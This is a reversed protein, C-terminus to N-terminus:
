KVRIKWGTQIYNVNTILTSNLKQIAAVSTGYKRAIGSLTDGSQITYYVKSNETHAGCLQNVRTQVANYDYGASTLRRKRDEGNGWNGALVEQALQDISKQAPSPVSSGKSYGNFGGSKIVSPYDVYSIDMDVRGGIGAVSGNSSYQWLGYSGSYTCKSSWQAVWFAYRNRVESSIYSLAASVSAYFGAYYGMKEMENCFASVLASCFAQGRNLQSKEEIDFYIPYEFQKGALVRACGQAEQKAEEASSAYSYWYAGVNLGAAKAKRYNEEFWNDKVGNGYGARIIVFEIGSAKVQNFDINGQWTSVDIGKAM